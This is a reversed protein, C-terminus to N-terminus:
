VLLPCQAELTNYSVYHSPFLIQLHLNECPALIHHYSNQYPRLACANELRVVSARLSRVVYNSKPNNTPRFCSEASSFSTIDLKLITLAPACAACYSVLVNQAISDNPSAVGTTMTGDAWSVQAAFPSPCRLGVQSRELCNFSPM